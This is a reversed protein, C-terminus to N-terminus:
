TAADVRDQIEPLLNKGFPINIFRKGYWDQGRVDSTQQEFKWGREKLFEVVVKEEEQNEPLIYLDSEHFSHKM